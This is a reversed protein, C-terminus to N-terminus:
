LWIMNMNYNKILLYAIIVHHLLMIIIGFPKCHCTAAFLVLYQKLSYGPIFLFQIYHAQSAFINLDQSSIESRYHNMEFSSGM